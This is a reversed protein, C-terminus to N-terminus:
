FCINLTLDNWKGNDLIVLVNSFRRTKHQTSFPTAGELYDDYLKSIWYIKYKKSIIFM